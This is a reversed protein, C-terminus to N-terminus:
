SCWGWNELVALLDIIDVAGDENVDEACGPCAGWAGVVALLDDIGIFQDQDVDGECSGCEDAIVNPAIEIFPGVIQNPMNGCITTGGLKLLGAGNIDFGGGDVSADNIRILSGSVDVECDRCAIGAGQKAENSQMDCAFYYLGGGEINAVGGDISAINQGAYLGWFQGHSDVFSSAAGHQAASNGLFVCSHSQFESDEFCLGGGNRSAQNSTFVTSNLNFGSTSALMFGAGDQALNGTFVSDRIRSRSVLSDGHFGGGQDGAVNGTFECDEVEVLSEFHMLGAGMGAQGGSITCREYVHSGYFGYAAGGSGEAVSDQFLSDRCILGCRYSWIGGANWAQNDNLQLDDILLSSEIAHIAGGVGQDQIDPGAENGNMRCKDLVISGHDLQLGGGTSWAANDIFDCDRVTANGAVFMGAGSEAINNEFQCQLFLPQGGQSYVGGGFSAFSNTIICNTITPSANQIRIGGGKIAEGNDLQFGALVSEPTEGTMATVVSGLNMADIRTFAAGDISKVTIAKGLFDIREPYIGPHVIIEDGAVAMVIAAQITPQDGPVEITAANVDEIAWVAMSILLLRTKLM